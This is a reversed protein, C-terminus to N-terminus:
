LLLRSQRYSIQIRSFTHEFLISVVITTQNHDQIQNGCKCETQTSEFQINMKQHCSPDEEKESDTNHRKERNSHLIRDIKTCDWYYELCQPNCHIPFDKDDYYYCYYKICSSDSLCDDEFQYYHKNKESITKLQGKLYLFQYKEEDEEVNRELIILGQYEKHDINYTYTRYFFLTFLLISNLLM